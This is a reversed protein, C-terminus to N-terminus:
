RRIVTPDVELVMKRLEIGDEFNDHQMLDYSRRDWYFQGQGSRNKIRQLVKARVEAIEKESAGTKKFLRFYEYTNDLNHM